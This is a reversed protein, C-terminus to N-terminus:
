SDGTVRKRKAQAGLSVLWFSFWCSFPPGPPLPFGRPAVDHRVNLSPIHNPTQARTAERHGGATGPSLLWHKSPSTARKPPGRSPPSPPRTWARKRGRTRISGGSGSYMGQAPQCRESDGQGLGRGATQEEVVGVEEICPPHTHPATECMRVCVHMHVCVCMCKERDQSPRQLNEESGLFLATVAVRSALNQMFLSLLNTGM